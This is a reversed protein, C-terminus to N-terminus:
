ALKRAGDFEVDEIPVREDHVAAGGEGGMLEGFLSMIGQEQERRRALTGDIIREYAHLLGQRPHGLSDFAGAKILSEVSRKNLVRPDVRSCLDYFDNFQGGTEREAVMRGVLGEGVSRGAAKGFGIKDGDASVE